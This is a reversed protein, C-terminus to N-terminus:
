ESYLRLYKNFIQIEIVAEILHGVIYQKRRKTKKFDYLTLVDLARSEDILNM